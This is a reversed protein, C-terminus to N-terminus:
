EVDLVVRFGISYYRISPRFSYRSASRCDYAGDRISGGRIIRNRGKTKGTSYDHYPDWCWESVNGHMDYLGWANERKLGVPATTQKPVNGSYWGVRDLRSEFYGSSFPSSTGSRCAYEWEAETPLRYGRKPEDWFVEDGEIAYVEELDELVSLRNCFRVCDLWSVQEVPLISGEFKSPMDGMVLLWQEQTIETESMYFPHSITISHLVEDYERGKESPPSGMTYQGPPIWVLDLGLQSHYGDHRIDSIPEIEKLASKPPSELEQSHSDASLPSFLRFTQEAVPVELGLTTPAGALVSKLLNGTLTEHLTLMVRLEGGFLVVEGTVVYDAGINRGTEVACAGLCNALPQGQPLLELINERTMLIYKNSHLIERANGRVINSIYDVEQQLLDARSTFDLVAVRSRTFAGSLLPFLLLYVILLVRPTIRIVLFSRQM